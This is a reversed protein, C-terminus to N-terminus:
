DESGIDYEVEPPEPKLDMNMGGNWNEPAMAKTKEMISLMYALPGDSKFQDSCMQWAMQAQVWDGLIYSQLGKDYLQEFEPNRQRQICRFDHDIEFVKEIFTLGKVGDMQEQRMDDADEMNFDIEIFDGIKRPIKEENLGALEDEDEDEEKITDIPKMDFVWLQKLESQAEKIFVQDLQRVSLQGKESLLDYFEGTLLIQTQYKENLDEVRKAIQVDPSIYLADVKQDTGISGEIAWGVHIGFSIETNYDKGFRPHIKPHKSYAQLDQERFLEAITKVASILAKDATEERFKDIENQKLDEFEDPENKTWPAYPKVMNNENLVKIKEEDNLEESKLSRGSM